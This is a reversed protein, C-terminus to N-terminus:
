RDLTCGCKRGVSGFCFFSVDMLDVEGAFLKRLLCKM